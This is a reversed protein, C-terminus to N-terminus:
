MKTNTKLNQPILEIFFSKHLIKSLFWFLQPTEAIAFYKKM